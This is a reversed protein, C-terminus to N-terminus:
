GMPYQANRLVPAPWLPYESTVDMPRVLRKEGDDMTLAIAMLIVTKSPFM